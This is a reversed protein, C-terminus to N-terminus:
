EVIVVPHELEDKFSGRRVMIREIWVALGVFVYGVLTCILAMFAWAAGMSLAMEQDLTDLLTPFIFDMHNMRLFGWLFFRASGPIELLLVPIGMSCALVVPSFLYLTRVQDADRGRSWLLFVIVMWTYLPGWIVGSVLFFYVTGLLIDPPDTSNFFNFGDVLYAFGGAVILVLYPIFLSLHYFTKRKM